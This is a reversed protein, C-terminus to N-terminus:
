DDKTGFIVNDEPCVEMQTTSVLGHRRPKFQNNGPVGAFRGSIEV